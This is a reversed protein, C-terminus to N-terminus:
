KYKIETQISIHHTQDLSDDDSNDELCFTELKKM